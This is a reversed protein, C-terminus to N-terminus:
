LVFPTAHSPAIFKFKGDAIAYFYVIPDIPDGTPAFQFQGVMTTYSSPSQLASMMTLRNTAGTRRAAAIVIQAAAYAFASLATVPFRSRFDNLAMVVDPARELPPFSTSIFGGELAGAHDHVTAQNYFGQSAGFKGKYGAARLAPILPGMAGTTGCLYIFDPNKGFIEKAAAAYNPKENAFLYMYAPFGSSKAQNLFGQAVDSGYDGDQTVAIALKPKQRKFLFLAALQGEISDKTPLRWVNRYGRATVSDATSGPVLLPMQANEYTNLSASILSGDFGGITAMVTPDSQAFQVNVISQALADMDDFSRVAFATTFTGGFRNTYDVAAQVGNLIDRGAAGRDGSLPANVAITLQQQFRNPIFQAGAARPIAAAGLAGAGSLLFFRRNMTM